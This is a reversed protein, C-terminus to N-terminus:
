RGAELEVRLPGMTGGFGVHVIEHIAAGAARVPETVYEFKPLAQDHTIVIKHNPTQAGAHLRAFYSQLPVRDSTSAPTKRATFYVGLQTGSSCFLSNKGSMTAHEYYFFNWGLFLMDARPQVIMIGRVDDFGNEVYYDHYFTPSIQVFGHNVYNNVPTTHVARGGPRLMDATNKMGQRIDFLHEMTGGDMILGFRGILEPPVPLNLDAVVDAGEYPSVDLTCLENLGLLKLLRAFDVYTDAPPPDALGAPDPEIGLSKFMELIGDYRINMSQKGFALVPGVFPERVHETLLFAVM